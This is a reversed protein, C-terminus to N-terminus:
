FVWTIVILLEPLRARLQFASVPLALQTVSSLVVSVMAGPPCGSITLTVTSVVLRAAPLWDAVTVMEEFPPWAWTAIVTTTFTGGGGGVGVGVGLAVGIGVAVAVAVGIGDGVGVGVGVAVGVGIGDCDDGQVKCAGECDFMAKLLLIPVLGLECLKVMPTFPVHSLLTVIVAVAAIAVPAPQSATVGVEVVGAPPLADKVMLTVEALRATPEYLPVIVNAALLPVPVREPLGCVTLTVSVTFSTGGTPETLGVDSVKLTKVVSPALLWFTM